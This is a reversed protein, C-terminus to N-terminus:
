TPAGAQLAMLVPGPLQNARRPQERADQIGRDVRTVVQALNALIAREQVSNARRPTNSGWGSAGADPADPRGTGKSFALPGSPMPAGIDTYAKSVRGRIRGVFESVTLPNGDQNYFLTANSRAADPLISAATQTPDATLMQRAGGQGLFHGLYIETADPQRRLTSALKDSVERLHNGAMAASAEADMRLDLIRQRQAPDTVGLRGGRDVIAAAEEGMGHAAGYKKVADFWTQETFQFLGTASSTGAKADPRFGSEIRASAMLLDFRTGTQLSANHVARAVAPDAKVRASALLTDPSSFGVNPGVPM